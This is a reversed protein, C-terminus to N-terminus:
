WIGNKCSSMRGEGFETKVLVALGRGFDSSIQVELNRDLACFNRAFRAHLDSIIHYCLGLCIDLLKKLKNEELDASLTQM